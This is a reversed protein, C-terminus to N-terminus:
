RTDVKIKVKKLLIAFNIYNGKGILNLLSICVPAQQYYARSFGCVLRDFNNGEGRSFYGHPKLIPMWRIIVFWLCEIAFKLRVNSKITRKWCQFSVNDYIVFLLISWCYFTAIYLSVSFNVSCACYPVWVNLRETVHSTICAWAQYATIQREVLARLGTHTYILGPKQARAYSFGWM